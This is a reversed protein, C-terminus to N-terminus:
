DAFCLVGTSVFRLSPAVLFTTAGCGNSGLKRELAGDATVPGHQPESYCASTSSDGGVGNYEQSLVSLYYHLHLM